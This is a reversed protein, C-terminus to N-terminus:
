GEQGFEETFNEQKELDKKSVTPRIRTYAKIFDDKTVEPPVLFEPQPIETLTMKIAGIEKETCIYYKGQVNKFYTATQCKRLPEYIAEQTLTAIDSGSYGETMEAIEDLDKETLTHPTKGINLDLMKYRAEHEPLCIYIKKQFRRRVAPDLDWPINTAGLVLIGTDDKGVGQMQVLFETKVRRTSEQEGDGRASLLSDIEDLFIVAPKNARALDFLARVTREAEGVWKSMINSASVSFFTGNVETACAKAIFSKGTGPPGYLLIGKWPKRKDNFLHKFKLPLIVAEKLAEKAADLGAVDDWKVNPKETVMCSALADQLKKTEEDEKPDVKKTEPLKKDDKGKNNGQEIKTDTNDIIKSKGNLIEGSLYNKKIGSAKEFYESAKKSYLDANYKNEDNMKLIRLKEIAKVYSNFANEWQQKDEFDIAAKAAEIAEKKTQVIDIM